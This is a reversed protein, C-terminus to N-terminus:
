VLGAAPPTKLPDTVSAFTPVTQGNVTSTSAQLRAVVDELTAQYAPDTLKQDRNSVVVYVPQGVPSSAQGAGFLDYARTSEYRPGSTQSVAGETRNGGLAMSLVFIGITAVFWLVLVPWRHRASWTAVSVTWPPRPKPASSAPTASM